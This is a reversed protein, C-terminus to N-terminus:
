DSLTCIGFSRLQLGIIVVMGGIAPDSEFLGVPYNVTNWASLFSLDSKRSM